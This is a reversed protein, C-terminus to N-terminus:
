PFDILVRMACGLCIIKCVIPWRRSACLCQKWVLTLSLGIIYFQNEKQHLCIENECSHNQVQGRKSLSPKLCDSLVISAPGLKATVQLLLNNTSYYREVGHNPHVTLFVVTAPLIGKFALWMWSGHMYESYLYIIFIPLGRKDGGCGFAM